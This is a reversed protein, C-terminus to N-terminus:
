EKEETNEKNGINKGYKKEVGGSVRDVASNVQKKVEEGTKSVSKKVADTVGKVRENDGCSSLLIMSIVLAITVFLSIKENRSRNM